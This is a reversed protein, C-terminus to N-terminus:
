SKKEESNRFSDLGEVLVEFVHIPLGEIEEPTRGTLNGILTANNEIEDKINQVFAIDSLLPERMVIKSVPKGSIQLPTEFEVVIDDLKAKLKYIKSM